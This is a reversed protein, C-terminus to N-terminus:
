YIIINDIINDIYIYQTRILSEFWHFRHCVDGHMWLCIIFWLKDLFVPAFTVYRMLGENYRRVDSTM